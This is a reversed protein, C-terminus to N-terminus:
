GWLITNRQWTKSFQSEPSLVSYFFSRSIGNHVVTARVLRRPPRFIGVGV